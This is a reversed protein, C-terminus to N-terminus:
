SGCRHVNRRLRWALMTPAFLAFRHCLVESRSLRIHYEAIGGATHYSEISNCSQRPLAAAAARKRKKATITNIKGKSKPSWSSNSGNGPTASLASLLPRGCRLMKPNRMTTRRESSTPNQAPLQRAISLIPQSTNM